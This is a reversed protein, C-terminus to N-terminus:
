IVLISIMVITFLTFNYFYHVAFANELGYKDHIKKLFIGLVFIVIVAYLPIGMLFHFFAWLVVLWWKKRFLLEEWYNVELLVTILILYVVIGLLYSFSASSAVVAGAANGEGSWLAFGMFTDGFLM